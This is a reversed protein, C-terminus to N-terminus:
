IVIFAMVMPKITKGGVVMSTEMLMSSDERVMPRTIKGGAKMCQVTLGYKFAEAKVFILRFCGNEKM